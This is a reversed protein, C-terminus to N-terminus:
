VINDEIVAVIPLVLTFVAGGEKRNKVQLHGGLKQMINYCISMGLGTGKGVPKTTFFPDFIHKMVEETMGPGNDSFEIVINSTDSKTSIEIRGNQILADMGNNLINLVVQQLQAGDTMTLPVDEGLDRIIEISNNKAENEVFSITEEVIENVNVTNRQSAMKKSFGLLRHTVTGARQVHYKIKTVSELYEERNKSQGPDEEELLEKIWGAQTTIMQLPNNIEHAIGAALRGVTAMKEMQVMQQNFNSREREAREMRVVMFHSVFVAVSLAVVSTVAIIILNNNRREDYHGLSDEVKSKVVLIWQDDKMWATAYLYSGIRSISTGQHRRVLEKEWPDLKNGGGKLSPTQFEAAANLIFADGNSGIRANYLFGNFIESNLTSRLIISRSPDTVAVVLHPIDRYGQFVDSIHRGDVLVEKFWPADKYNKGAVNVRYPGVYALQTGSADLVQLDVLDGTKSMAAFIASLNKQDKLVDAPYLRIMIALLDEQQRLFLEIVDKRHEVLQIESFEIKDIAEKRSSTSTVWVIILTPIIILVFFASTLIKQLRIFYNAKANM